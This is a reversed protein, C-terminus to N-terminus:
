KKEKYINKFKIIAMILMLIGIGSIFLAAFINEGMMTIGVFILGLIVTLFFLFIIAIIPYRIWKNVKKNSGIEMGGEVLLEVVLEILFDM